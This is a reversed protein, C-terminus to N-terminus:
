GKLEFVVAVSATITTSGAQVPVDSRAAMLMPASDQGRTTESISIAEGLEADALRAYQSARALADAYAADRASAAAAREDAVSMSVNRLRAADGAAAVADGIVTPATEIDRLAVTHSATYGIIPVNRGHEGFRPQVSLQTTAIDRSSVQAASLSTLVASITSNADDLAASVSDASCEVGLDVQMTDPVAEAGGHGVVSVTRATGSGGVRDTM